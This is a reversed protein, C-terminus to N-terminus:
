AEVFVDLVDNFDYTKETKEDTVRIGTIKQVGPKVPMLTLTISTTEGASLSGLKQGSIGNVAIGTMKSKLFTLRPLISKDSVNTLECQISFPQELFIHSPIKRITLEVDIAVPLKREIPLSQFRGTEGMNSKWIIELHGIVSSAKAARSDHRAELRFLYQRIDQPNFYTIDGLFSTLQKKGGHDDNVSLDFATFMPSPDFKVAEIFLPQQTTNQIQASLFNGYQLDYIKTSIEFPNLVQFKFFKRFSKKENDHKLYNVACVLIHISNEKLDHSVVYDHSEGSNFLPFANPGIELLCVRQTSTQLEAKISVNRVDFPSHNHLSIYSVFSEGVFINGFSQPLCLETSIGYALFENGYEEDLIPDSIDTHESTIPLGLRFSPKSLRMVKLTLAQADKQDSSPKQSMIQHPSHYNTATSSYQPGSTVSATASASQM